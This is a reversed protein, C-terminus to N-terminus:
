SAQLIEHTFTGPKLKCVSRENCTVYTEYHNCVLEYSIRRRLCVIRFTRIFKYSMRIAGENCKM